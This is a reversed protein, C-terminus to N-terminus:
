KPLARALAGLLAANCALDIELLDTEYGVLTINLSVANDLILRGQVPSAENIDQLEAARSFDGSLGGTASRISGASFADIEYTVAFSQGCAELWGNGHLAGILKFQGRSTAPRVLFMNGPPIKVGPVPMKATQPTPSLLSM